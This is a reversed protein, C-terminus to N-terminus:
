AGDAYQRERDAAPEGGLVVLTQDLLGFGAFALRRHHQEGLERRQPLGVLEGAATDLGLERKYLARVAARLEPVGVAPPYNTHGEDLHHKIRDVLVPPVRFHEPSFDGITFGAIPKGTAQLERVEAAIALIVSGTLGQAGESLSRSALDDQDAFFTSVDIAM